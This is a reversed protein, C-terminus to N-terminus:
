TFFFMLIAIFLHIILNDLLYGLHSCLERVEPIPDKLLQFLKSHANDRTAAWRVEPNYNWAAALCLVPWLRQQCNAYMNVTDFHNYRYSNNLPDYPLPPCSSTMQELCIPLIKSCLAKNQLVQDHLIMFSVIYAAM